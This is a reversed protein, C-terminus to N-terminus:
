LLSNDTLDPYSKMFLSYDDPVGIDFFKSDSKFQYVNSDQLAFTLIDKEFSFSVSNPNYVDFVSQDVFYAGSSIWGPGVIGKEIFKTVFGFESEVIGFRFADDVYVSNIGVLYDVSTNLPQLLHSYSGGIEISDGNFVVAKKIDFNSLITQIAGGTGLPVDEIFFSTRNSTRFVSSRLVKDHNFGLSVIINDFGSAYIKNVLLNIFNTKGVPAMCKPTAGLVASIRSGLGGALIIATNM